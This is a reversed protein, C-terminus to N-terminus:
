LTKALKLPRTPLMAINRPKVDVKFPYPCMQNILRKLRAGDTRISKLPKIGHATLFNYIIKIM